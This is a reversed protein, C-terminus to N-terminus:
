GDRQEKESEEFYRVLARRIVWSVPRDERRAQRKLERDMERPMSIGRTVRPGDLINTHM